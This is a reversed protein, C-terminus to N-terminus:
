HKIFNYTKGGNFLVMKKSDLKVIDYTVNTEGEWFWLKENLTKGYKAIEKEDLLIHLQNSNPFEVYGYIVETPAAKKEKEYLITYSFIAQRQFSYFVTDITQITENEDQITKLQWMGNVNPLDFDLCSSLCLSTIILFFWRKKMRSLTILSKNPHKM